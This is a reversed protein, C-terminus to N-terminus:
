QHVSIFMTDPNLFYFKIYWGDKRVVHVSISSDCDHPTTVLHSNTCNSLLQEVFKAGVQGTALLNKVNIDRRAEHQFTGARLATIVTRKIENFRM